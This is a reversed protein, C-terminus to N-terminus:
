LIIMMLYTATQFLDIDLSHAVAAVVLHDLLDVVVTVFFDISTRVAGNRPLNAAM